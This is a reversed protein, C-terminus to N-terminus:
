QFQHFVTYPSRHTHHGTHITVPTYPSRHTHHGTHITVLTYPSRHTHHGTHITVPTYPSRHTICKLRCQSQSNKLFSGGDEDLRAVFGSSQRAHDISIGFKMSILLATKVAFLYSTQLCRSHYFVKVSKMWCQEKVTTCLDTYVHIQM